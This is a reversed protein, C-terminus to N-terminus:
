ITRYDMGTWRTQDIEPILTLNRQRDIHRDSRPHNGDGGGKKATERVNKIGRKRKKHLLKQPQCGNEENTRQHIGFPSRQGGNRGIGTLSPHM